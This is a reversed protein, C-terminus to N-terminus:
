TGSSHNFAADAGFLSGILQGNTAQYYYTGDYGLYYYATRPDRDTPFLFGGSLPLQYRTSTINVRTEATSGIYTQTPHYIAYRPRSSEFLFVCKFYWGIFEYSGEQTALFAEFRDMLAVTSAHSFHIGESQTSSNYTISRGFDPHYFRDETETDQYMAYVSISLVRSGTSARTVARTNNANTIIEDPEEDPAIAYSLNAVEEDTLAVCGEPLKNEGAEYAAYAPVLECFILSLSLIACIIRKKM